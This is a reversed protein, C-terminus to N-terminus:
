CYLYREVHNSMQICGKCSNDGGKGGPKVVSKKDNATVADEAGPQGRQYRVALERM